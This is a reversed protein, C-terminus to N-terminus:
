KNLRELRRAETLNIRDKNYTLMWSRGEKTLTRERGLIFLKRVRPLMDQHDKDVQEYEDQDALLKVFVDKYNEPYPIGTDRYFLRSAMKMNGNDDYTDDTSRYIENYPIRTKRVVQKIYFMIALVSMTVADLETYLERDNWIEQAIQKIVLSKRNMVFYQTLDIKRASREFVADRFHQDRLMLHLIFSGIDIWMAVSGSKMWDPKLTLATENYEAYDELYFEHELIDKNLAASPKVYSRGYDILYLLKTKESYLINEAHVDNHVFGTLENAKIMKKFLVELKDYIKVADESENEIYELFRQPKPVVDTIIYPSEGIRTRCVFKMFPYYKVKHDGEKTIAVENQALGRMVYEDQYLPDTEKDFDSPSKAM